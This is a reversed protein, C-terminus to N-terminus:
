GVTAPRNESSPWRWNAIAGLVTLAAGAVAVFWGYAPGSTSTPGCVGESVIFGESMAFLVFGLAISAPLIAIWSKRLIALILALVAAGAAVAPSFPGGSLACEPRVNFPNGIHHWPMGNSAVILALGAGLIVIAAIPRRVNAPAVRM